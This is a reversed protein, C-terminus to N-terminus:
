QYETYEVSPNSSGNNSIYPIITQLQSVVNNPLSDSFKHILNILLGTLNELFNDNPTIDSQDKNLASGNPLSSRPENVILKHAQVDYSKSLLHHPRREKYYTKKYSKQSTQPPSSVEIYNPIPTSRPMTRHTQPTTQFLRQSMEAYSTRIPRFRQSAELYGINEEAMVIKISKQRAHEPCKQDTARHSGSCFVCSIRDDTCDCSDGTHPQACRYCCPKSRCKAAIHGFKCCDRCQITPLEYISVPISTNYLYVKEPLSQSHFTLVITTSPVWEPSQGENRIKRSLRRAKIVNIHGFGAPYQIGETLEELTWDTPINKIVGMRSVLFKPITASMNNNKLLESEVFQNAVSATKFGISIKNRGISKISGELIGTVKNKHLIQAIKLAHLTLGASPDPESRSVHVVFPGKDTSSYKLPENDTAYGPTVFINQYSDGPSTVKKSQSSDIDNLTRKRATTQSVGTVQSLPPTLDDMTDEVAEDVSLMMQSGGKDPPDRDSM